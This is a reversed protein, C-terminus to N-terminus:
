IDNRLRELNGSGRFVRAMNKKWINLKVKRVEQRENVEIGADLLTKVAKELGEESAKYLM